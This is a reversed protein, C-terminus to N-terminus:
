SGEEDPLAIVTPAEGVPGGIVPQGTQQALWDAFAEGIEDPAVDHEEVYRDFDSLDAM